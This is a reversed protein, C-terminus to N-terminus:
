GKADVFPQRMAASSADILAACKAACAAPMIWVGDTLARVSSAASRQTSAWSRRWLACRSNSLDTAQCLEASAPANKRDTIALSSVLELLSM